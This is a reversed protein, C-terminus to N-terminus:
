KKISNHISKVSPLPLFILISSSKKSTNTKFREKGKRKNEVKLEKTQRTKKNYCTKIHKELRPKCKQVNLICALNNSNGNQPKAM